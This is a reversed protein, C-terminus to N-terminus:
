TIFSLLPLILPIHPIIHFNSVLHVPPIEIDWGYRQEILPTTLSLAQM